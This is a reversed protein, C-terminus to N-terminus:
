LELRRRREAWRWSPTACDANPPRRGRACALVDALTVINVVIQVAM